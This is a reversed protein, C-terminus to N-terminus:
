GNCGELEQLREVVRRLLNLEDNAIPARDMRLLLALAEEALSPPKPRRAARLAEADQQLPSWDNDFVWQCCAELEQDAGHRWAITIIEETSLPLNNWRQVLEPPPTIPHNEM